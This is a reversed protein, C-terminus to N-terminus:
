GGVEVYEAAFHYTPNALRMRHEAEVLTQKFAIMEAWCRGQARGLERHNFLTLPRM